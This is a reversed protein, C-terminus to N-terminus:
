CAWLVVILVVAKILQIFVLDNLFALLFSSQWSQQVETDFVVTFVMLFAFMFGLLGVTLISGIFFWVSCRPRDIKLHAEDTFSQLKSLVVMYDYFYLFGIGLGKAQFYKKLRDKLFNQTETRQKKVKYDRFLAALIFSLFNAVILSIISVQFSETM